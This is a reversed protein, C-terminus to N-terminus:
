GGYSAGYAGAEGVAFEGEDIALGDVDGFSLRLVSGVFMEECFQADSDMREGGFWGEGIGHEYFVGCDDEVFESDDKGKARFGALWFGLGECFSESCEAFEGVDGRGGGDFAAVYEADIASEVNALGCAGVGFADALEGGDEGRVIVFDDGNGNGAAEVEFGGHSIEAAVGEECIARPEVRLGEVCVLGDGKLPDVDVRALLVGGVSQGDGVGDDKGCGEGFSAGADFGGSEVDGGDVDGFELFGLGAQGARAQNERCGRSKEVAQAVIDSM